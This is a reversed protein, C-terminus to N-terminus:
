SNAGGNVDIPQYQLHGNADRTVRVIGADPVLSSAIHIPNNNDIIHPIMNLNESHTVAGIAMGPNKDMLSVLGSFAKHFRDYSNQYSEGGPIQLDPHRKFYHVMGVIDPGTKGALDGFDTARLESTPIVKTDLTQGIEMASQYARTLDSTFIVHLNKDSLFNATNRVRDVGNQTLPVQSWGSFKKAEGDKDDATEGHRIFYLGHHLSTDSGHNGATASGHAM